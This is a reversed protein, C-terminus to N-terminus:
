DLQQFNLYRSNSKVRSPYNERKNWKTPLHKWVDKKQESNLQENYRVGLVATTGIAAKKPDMFDKNSTIGLQKLVEKEKKNLYSWRIQTLGVSRTDEDAGYTTAKSKYDPSSSSKSDIAKNVARTFNGIASHTDGFNSETGYIGFAMKALENYVDSPIQAAKMIAKKNDTLSKVFPKTTENYEKDDNFDFATFVEDKFKDENFVSKIPKYVLTNTSRNVGQGKQKVGKKDVYTEYKKSNKPDVRFVPKGDVIDFRNGKDEPLIYVKSGEELYKYMEPLDQCKGNICGNSMRNDTVTNNNFYKRRSKPTGHISTAVEIGQENKLNFSPLGYYEDSAPDINSITYIGAGTSKNGSDWNTKGNVKKTVTQADGPNAGVGIEFSKILTTGKFINLKANKKDVISYIEDPNKEHYKVIKQLDDLKNLDNTKKKIVEWNKYKEPLEKVTSSPIILEQGISIINVDKINNAQAIKRVSVGTERAIKSLTDGKGVVYGGDPKIPDILEIPAVTVDPKNTDTQSVPIIGGEDFKDLWGSQKQQNYNTFNLLNDLNVLGKQEQRLGNKAIRSETVKKTGKKFKHKEGPYMIRREGKDSVGLLPEYVGEMDIFSNPDSQDIEVDKGWNDPNWYGMDDKIVGGQKM